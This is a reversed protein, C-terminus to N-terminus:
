RDVRKLVLTANELTLRIRQGDLAKLAEALKVDGDVTLTATGDPSFLNYFQVDKFSVSNERRITYFFEQEQSGSATMSLAFWIVVVGVLLLAAQFLRV